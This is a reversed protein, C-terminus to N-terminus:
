WRFACWSSSARRSSSLGPSDRRMVWVVWGRPQAMFTMRRLGRRSSSTAPGVGTLARRVCGSSFRSHAKTVRASGRAGPSPTRASSSTISILGTIEPPAAHLAGDAALGRDDVDAPVVGVEAGLVEEAEAAVLHGLRDLVVGHDAGVLPDQDGDGSALV